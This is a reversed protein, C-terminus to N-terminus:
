KSADEKLENDKEISNEKNKELLDSKIRYRNEREFIEDYKSFDSKSDLKLEKTVPNYRYLPFYGSDVALKEEKISDKMGTKIGHSICPSYAIIISPGDYENAEKLAKITQM